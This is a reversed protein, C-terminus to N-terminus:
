EYGDTASVARGGPSKGVKGSALFGSMPGEMCGACPAQFQLPMSPAWDPGGGLNGASGSRLEPAAWTGGGAAAAAAAAEGEAGRGLRAGPEGCVHSECLRRLEWLVLSAQLRRLAAAAAAAEM